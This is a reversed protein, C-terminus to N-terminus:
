AKQSIYKIWSYRKRKELYGQDNDNAYAEREFPNERYAVEGSRYRVLGVLYFLVYMIWQGVFLMELQQQFHITEHRKTREPIEARCWVWIGFSLAFINIPAFNSLFIPLKSNEIFFPKLKKLNM